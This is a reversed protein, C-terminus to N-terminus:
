KMGSKPPFVKLNEKSLLMNAIPKDCMSNIINLYMGEIRLKKLHNIM